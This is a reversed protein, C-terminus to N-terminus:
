LQYAVSGIMFMSAKLFDWIFSISAVMPLSALRPPRSAALHTQRLVREVGRDFNALLRKQCTVEITIERQSKAQHL